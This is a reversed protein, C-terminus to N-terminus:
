ENALREPISSYLDLAYSDMLSMSWPLTLLAVLLMIVLKPVFSLTQEQLQTVAQALSIILGVLMASMLSPLCVMLAVVVANRCLELATDSTM